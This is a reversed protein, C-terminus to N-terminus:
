ISNIIYEIGERIRKIYEKDKNDLMGVNIEM